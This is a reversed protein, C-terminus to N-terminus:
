QASITPALCRAASPFRWLWLTLMLRVSVHQSLRPDLALQDRASPERSLQRPALIKLAQHSGHEFCLVSSSHHPKIPDRHLHFRRPSRSEGGCQWRYLGLFAGASLMNACNFFRTPLGNKCASFPCRQASIEVLSRGSQGSSRGRWVGSTRWHRADM